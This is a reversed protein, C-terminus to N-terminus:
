LKWKITVSASNLRPRIQFHGWLESWKTCHTFCLFRAFDWKDMQRKDKYGM